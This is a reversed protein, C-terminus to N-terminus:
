VAKVARGQEKKSLWIHRFCQIQWLCLAKMIVKMMKWLFVSPLRRSNQRRMASLGHIIAAAASRQPEQKEPSLIDMARFPPRRGYDVVSEMLQGLITAEETSLVQGFSEPLYKKVRRGGGATEIGDVMYPEM